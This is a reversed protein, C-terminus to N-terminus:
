GPPCPGIHSMGSLAVEMASTSAKTLASLGTPATQWAGTANVFTRPFSPSYRTLPLRTVPKLLLFFCRDMELLHHWEKQLVPELFPTANVALSGVPDVRGPPRDAPSRGSDRM